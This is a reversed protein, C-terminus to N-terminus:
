EYDKPNFNVGIKTDDSFFRLLKVEKEIIEGDQNTIEVVDLSIWEDRSYDAKGAISEFIKNAKPLDSFRREMEEHFFPLFKKINHKIRFIEM